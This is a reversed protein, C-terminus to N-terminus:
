MLPIRPWVIIVQIWRRLRIKVAVSKLINAHHFFIHCSPQCCLVGVSTLVSHQLEERVYSLHKLQPPVNQVTPLLVYFSPVDRDFQFNMVFLANM